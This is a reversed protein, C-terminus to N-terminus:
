HSPKMRCPGPPQQERDGNSSCGGCASPFRDCRICSKGCPSPQVYEDKWYWWRCKEPDPQDTNVFYVVARLLYLQCRDLVFGRLACEAAYLEEAPIGRLSEMTTYGMAILDAETCKGVNPIQKLESM